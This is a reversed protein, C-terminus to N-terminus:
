HPTQGNLRLVEGALYLSGLILITGEPAAAIADEPTTAPIVAMGLERGIEAIQEPAHHAHGPVPLPTVSTAWGKFPELLGLADKNALVGTILHIKQGAFHAAIAKGGDVNHGGDLWVTRDGILPGPALRQLRAPWEAWGTLARLAADPIPVARQHRLMAIALAANNVQHAGPLKPLPVSLKGGRDRYHLKGQYTAADWQGKRPLWEAGAQAAAGEIRAAM